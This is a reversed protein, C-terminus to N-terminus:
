ARGHAAQVVISEVEEASLFRAAELRSAILDITRWRMAVLFRALRWAKELRARDDGVICLAISEDNRESRGATEYIERVEAEIDEVYGPTLQREAATGALAIVLATDATFAEVDALAWAGPPAAGPPIREGLAIFGFRQELEIALVTHAAEHIAIRKWDPQAAM